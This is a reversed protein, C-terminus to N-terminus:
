TYQPHRSRSNFPPVEEKKSTTEQRDRQRKEAEPYLTFLTLSYFGGALLSVPLIMNIRRLALM